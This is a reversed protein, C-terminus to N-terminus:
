HRLTVGFKFSSNVKRVPLYQPTFEFIVGDTGGFIAFNKLNLNVMTGLVPGFSTLGATAAVSFINWRKYSAGLRFDAIKTDGFRYSATAGAALGELFPMDMRAGLHISGDVMHFSKENVIPAANYQCVEKISKIVDQGSSTRTGSMVGYQSNIWQIGGLDTVAASVLLGDMPKYTMGFDMSAGFGSFRIANRNFTYDYHGKKTILTITPMAINLDGEGTLTVEGDRSVITMENVKADAEAFGLLGKVAAGFTFDGVERSYGASLEFYNKTNMFADSFTYSNDEDGSKLYEFLSKPMSMTLNCKMNMEFMIQSKGDKLRKGASFFNNNLQFTANIASPLGNLFKDAPIHSNLGTVLEGDYPFLYNALGVNTNASFTLNDLVLGTFAQTSYQQLAPNLRYGYVYEDLFFATKLDQAATTLSVLILSVIAAIRSVKRTM